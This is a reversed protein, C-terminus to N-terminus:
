ARERSRYQTPQSDTQITRISCREFRNTFELVCFTEGFLHSSSFPTERYNAFNIWDRTRRRDLDHTFERTQRAVEFHLRRLLPLHFCAMVSTINLTQIVWEGTVWWHPEHRVWLFFRHFLSPTCTRTLNIQSHELSLESFLMLCRLVIWLLTQFRQARPSKDDIFSLFLSTTEVNLVFELSSLVVCSFFSIVTNKSSSLGNSACFARM